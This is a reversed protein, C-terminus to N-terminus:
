GVKRLRLADHAAVAAVVGAADRDHNWVDAAGTANLVDAADGRFPWLDVFARDTGIRVEPRDEFARRAVLKNDGVAGGPGSGVLGACETSGM